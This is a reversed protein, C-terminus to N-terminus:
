PLDDEHLLAERDFAAISDHGSLGLTLDLDATFNKLVAEVGDQGDLALGYAYPRGLLVADAGLALAKLADAARRIGSDFLITADDGVAEVVRPLMELSAVAGDVQRGGHNSVVVADAGRDVARRADDPRLIGKVVVPLDTRDALWDLDDFGLSADGFVDLFEQVALMENEEPPRDCRARFVDDSWYNAVGEADLFPLYAHEVDRERWGVLPTDVTAVVAGYGAAAARDLFSGALERDPSWYLQFWGPTEGLEAAIEEMTFSSVTSVCMPVNREAAARAVALEAEEHLISQVGIPALLFPVDHTEGFLDVSLDREAVDRLMRPVIRWREFARRNRSATDEAGASGAVYAHAEESIADLAAAELEEFSPPVDPTVGAYGQM